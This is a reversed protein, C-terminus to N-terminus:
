RLVQVNLLTQAILLVAILCALGYLVQLLWAPAHLGALIAQAIWVLILLVILLVLLTLLGTAM